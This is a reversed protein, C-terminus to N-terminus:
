VTLVGREEYVNSPRTILRGLAMILAVMGDIRQRSAKKSPKLNGAADQEVALNDANWDLVPHAPHVLKRGLVLAQLHKTPASMSAYGQGFPVVNAGDEQLRQVLYSANWRDYAIERIRYTAALQKIDAEVRAYDVSDGPTLTIAGAREWATYPVRDRKEARLATERPAWFFPLVAVQEGPLPFALVFATLDTTSSLDLGAFCERGRLSEPDIVGACARWDALDLWRSEQSVWQNLRLRRFANQLAPTEKARRYAERLEELKVTVGLSPNAKRWTAEDEWDDKEDAAYIVPLFSPDDILGDRVKLAYEWVEYGISHRDTGATTLALILPQRRAAGSGETLTDWLERTPQAHLEDFVVGSLNFGHKTFAEASVVRYVSSTAPVVVRKTSDLIRCRRALTPNARVMQVATQFVISAQERDAAASVVEAAPERDALLLYLAIAAALESKGNKKAIAVFVRRYQRTGDPRLTGFVRTVLEEQWPLLTFPRGAWEGKTHTLHRIFTLARNAAEREAATVDM